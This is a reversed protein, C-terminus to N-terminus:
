RLLRGLTAGFEEVFAEITSADREAAALMGLVAGTTAAGALSSWAVRGAGASVYIQHLGEVAAQITSQLHISGHNALVQWHETQEVRYKRLASGLARAREGPTAVVAPDLSAMALAELLTASEVVCADVAAEVTAFHEYFTNRGLGRAAAISSVSLIERTSIVQRV